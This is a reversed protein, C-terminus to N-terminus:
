LPIASSFNGCNFDATLYFIQYFTHLVFVDFNSILIDCEVMKTLFLNMGWIMIKGIRLCINELIGDSMGAM